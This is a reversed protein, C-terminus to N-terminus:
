IPTPWLPSLSARFPFCISAIDAGDPLLLTPYLPPALAPTWGKRKATRYMRSLTQVAQLYLLPRECTPSESKQWGRVDTRAGARSFIPVVQELGSSCSPQCEQSACACCVRCLSAREAHGCILKRSSGPVSAKEASDFCGSYLDVRRRAPVPM